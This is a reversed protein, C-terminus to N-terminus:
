RSVSPSQAGVPEAALEALDAATIAGSHIASAVLVGDCGADRL